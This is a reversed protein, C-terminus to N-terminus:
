YWQLYLNNIKATDPIVDSTIKANMDFRLSEPLEKKDITFYVNIDDISIIVNRLTSQIGSITYNDKIEKFTSHCNLGKLTRYRKDVIMVSKITSTSDLAEFPTLVLLKNGGKEYVEIENINGTFEDGGIYRQISDNKFVFQLDKVQTSDTLLGIHQKSVEFPDQKIEKQCSTALNFIVLIIIAKKIM